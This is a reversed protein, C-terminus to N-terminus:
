QACACNADILAFCARLPPAVDALTRYLPAVVAKIFGLENRAKSPTDPSVREMVGVPLGAARELAAQSAFETELEGAIRRSLAFPLLPNCLDACHLLYSM